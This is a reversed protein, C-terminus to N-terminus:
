TLVWIIEVPYNEYTISCGHKMSSITFLSYVCIEWCCISYDLQRHSLTFAGYSVVSRGICTRQLKLASWLKSRLTILYLHCGKNFRFLTIKSMENRVLFDHVKDCSVATFIAGCLASSPYFMPLLWNVKM